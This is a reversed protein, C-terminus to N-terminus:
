KGTAGAKTQDTAPHTTNFDLSPHGEKLSPIEHVVSSASEETMTQADAASNVVHPTMFIVLESRSTIHERSRFFQGILPLDSLLPIRNVTNTTSKQILGGIAVTQGSQISVLTDAARQNIIPVQTAFQGSGLTEFNQLDSAITYLDITVLGSSTIRPTVDLQYGVQANVIQAPVIIGNSITPAGGYYPIQQAIDIYAEQDNSTFIRPTAVVHVRNDAQLAQLLATYSAGNLVFQGGNAVPDISAGNAGSNFGSQTLNLQGTATNSHNFLNTFLGSLSFGLKQDSSLTVEAVIVEIEVQRPVVDLDSILKKITDYNDPTTTVILSDGTPSATVFVNNQLQLLNAYVGNIGRGYQPGNSTSLGRQQQQQGFRGFFQRTPDSASGAAGAPVFGQPTMIGPVASSSASSTDGPAGPPPPVLARGFAASAAGGPQRQIKQPVNTTNFGTTATNNFTNFNGLSQQTGFAQTLAAAVDDAQANKLKFIFTTAQAPVPRDLSDILRNITRLRDPTATILLSNTREDAVVKGFPDTSETTQAQQNQNGGGFFGGFGFVRNNFNNNNNQTGPGSGYQNSLVQNVTNAVDDANAYVVKRLTTHMMDQAGGDLPTIINEAIRAQSDKSGVVLVSNTRADAIAFVSPHNPLTANAAAPPPPGFRPGPPAETTGAQSMRQYVNNIMNAIDNAQAHILPYVRLETKDSAQDLAHALAIFRQVNSATDTIILANTQVSAVLSAGTNILPKLDTSLTSADVNQLPIVQTMVQDRPDVPTIGNENIGPNFIPTNKSATAFPLISIVNGEQLASFGRASLVQQLILFAQDLTVQKPNIITVTGSLTPDAVITQNAMRAYLSLVDMINSNHFEFSFTQGSDGRFNPMGGPGGPNFGRKRFPIKFGKYRNAFNPSGAPPTPPAASSVRQGTLLGSACIVSLSLPILARSSFSRRRKETDKEIFQDTVSMPFHM